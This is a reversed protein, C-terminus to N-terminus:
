MSKKSKLRPLGSLNTLFRQFSAELDLLSQQLANARVDQLWAFEPMTKLVTLDKAHDHYTLQEGCTRYAELQKSLYHNWVFRCAGITELMRQEQQKTPYLRLRYSRRIKM